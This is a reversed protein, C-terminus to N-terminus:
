AAIASLLTALKIPKFLVPWGSLESEAVRERSTDGTLIVAKFPRTSRQGIAALFEVGTAGPLRFDSIYVDAAAIDPNSLAQEASCYTSVRMGVSELSAKIAGVVLADDEVVVAHREVRDRAARIKRLPGGEKKRGKGALPLCFEFVSGRGVRSRCVIDTGLLRSQRKAIALGLGLGKTRDRESNQIQFYEDFIHNLHEPAIGIGTDWIQVVAQGGRRRVAVLIGGQATYKIANGILNGLLSMLLKRDTMIATERRPCFLMFRLNKREAMPSLEAAMRSFFNEVEITEPSMPVIGADLRSIDLLAGLLEGLSHISLTLYESIKKQDANLGSRLLADNFLSIAQLPQRLDHSAAALFSSKARNAREAARKAALLETEFAKRESTDRGVTQFRVANGAADFFARCTWQNSARAGGPKLYDQEYTTIPQQPTLVSLRECVLLRNGTSLFDFIKRGLLQRRTKGLLSAMAENVYTLTGDADFTAVFIPMDEALCRYQEESAQLVAETRKRQSIDSLVVRLVMVGDLERAVTSELRVWLSSDGPRHLRLECVQPQGSAILRRRHVYFIDRDESEIFSLIPQNALAERAVGLLTAACLNAERILGSGSLTCYGVPALEYLAFYRARAADLALQARQLEDNQMELEIHHVRLEHVMQRIAEPSLVDCSGDVKAAQGDVVAKARRRLEESPELRDDRSTM